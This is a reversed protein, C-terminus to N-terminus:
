KASGPYSDNHVHVVCAGSPPRNAGSSAGQAYKRDHTWRTVRLISPGTRATVAITACWGCQKGYQKIRSHPLIM